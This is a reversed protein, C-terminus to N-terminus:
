SPFSGRINVQWPLFLDNLLWPWAGGGGVGVYVFSHPVQWGLQKNGKGSHVLLVPEM